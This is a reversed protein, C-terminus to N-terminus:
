GRKDLTDGLLMFKGARRRLMAACDGFWLVRLEDGEPAAMVASAYPIEYNEVPPRNRLARFSKEADAATRHLWDRLDGEGEEAHASLRRAAFQALWHADSRGPMLRAGLGTAGDFVAAAHRAAVFNDENPKASDGPLSLSELCEFHLNM